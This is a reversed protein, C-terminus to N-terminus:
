PGPDFGSDGATGLYQLVQKCGFECDGGSSTPTGAVVVTNGIVNTSIAGNSYAQIWFPQFNNGSTSGPNNMLFATGNTLINGGAILVEVNGSHPPSGVSQNVGTGNTTIGRTNNIVDTQNLFARIVSNSNGTSDAILGDTLGRLASNQLVLKGTNLKIGTTSSSGAAGIIQLNRLIVVNGLGATVTVGVTGTQVTIIGGEIAAITVPGTIAVPGYASEDLAIIEGGAQTVGYAAAFTKCPNARPCNSSTNSDLGGSSVYTRTASAHAASALALGVVTASLVAHFSPMLRMQEGM